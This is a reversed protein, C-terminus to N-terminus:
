MFLVCQCLQCLSIVSMFVYSVCQSLQWLMCVSVVSLCVCRGCSDSVRQNQYATVAMFKTEPFIFTRHNETGTINESKPPTYLVHLRPQYKHMSNLIIQPLPSLSWLILKVKLTLTVFLTGNLNLSTYNTQLFTYNTQPFTYNTQFSTYNAQLFTM